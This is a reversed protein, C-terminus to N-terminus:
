ATSDQLEKNFIVIKATMSFPMRLSNTGQKYLAPQTNQQTTLSNKAQQRLGPLTALTGSAAQPAAATPPAQNAAITNALNTIVIILAEIQQSLKTNSPPNGAMNPRQIRLHRTTPVITLVNTKLSKM